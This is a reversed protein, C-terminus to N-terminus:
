LILLGSIFFKRANRSRQDKWCAAAAARDSNSSTRRRSALTDASVPIRCFDKILRRDQNLFVQAGAAFSAGVLVFLGRRWGVDVTWQRGGQNVAQLGGRGYGSGGYGFTGYGLRGYGRKGLMTLRDISLDLAEGMDLIRHRLNTATFEVFM